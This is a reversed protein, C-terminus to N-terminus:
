SNSKVKTKDFFTYARGGNALVYHMFIQVHYQGQFETRWHEAVCGLYLMGDGPNLNLCVEEGNPKKICIPWPTQDQQLNVTISVECADRDTHRHLVEGKNYIRGYVYTPLVDEGCLESVHPVKKVLLKICPLLNYIAPSLPCQPDVKLKNDRQAIYFEQALSEAEKASIFNPVYLYSNTLLQENM